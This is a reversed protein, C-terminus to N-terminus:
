KECGVTGIKAVSDALVLGEKKTALNKMKFLATGGPGIFGTEETIMKLKDDMTITLAFEVKLQASKADATVGGRPDDEQQCDNFVDIDPQFTDKAIYQKRSFINGM